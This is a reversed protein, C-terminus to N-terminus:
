LRQRELIAERQEKLGMLVRNLHESKMHVMPIWFANSTHATTTEPAPVPAEMETKSEEGYVYGMMKRPSTGGSQEGKHDLTARSSASLFILTPTVISLLAWFFFILVFARGPM